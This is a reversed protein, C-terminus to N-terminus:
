FYHYVIRVKTDGDGNQIVRLRVLVTFEVKSQGNQSFRLLEIAQMSCDIVIKKEHELLIHLCEAVWSHAAFHLQKDKM